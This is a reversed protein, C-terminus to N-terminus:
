NDLDELLAPLVATRFHRRLEKSLDDALPLTLTPLHNFHLTVKGDHPWLDGYDVLWRDDPNFRNELNGVVEVSSLQSRAWATANVSYSPGENSRPHSRAHDLVALIVRDGTLLVIQGSCVGPEDPALRADVYVPEDGDLLMHLRGVAHWPVAAGMGVLDQLREQLDSAEM